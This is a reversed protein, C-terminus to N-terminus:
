GIMTYGQQNSPSSVGTKMSGMSGPLMQKKRFKERFDSQEAEQKAQFAGGSEKIRQSLPTKSAAEKELDYKSKRSPSSKSKIEGYYKDYDDSYSQDGMSQNLLEEQGRAQRQANVRAMQQPTWGYNGIRPQKM